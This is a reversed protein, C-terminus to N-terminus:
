DVLAILEDKEDQSLQDWQNFKDAQAIWRDKALTTLLSVRGREEETTDTGSQKLNAIRIELNRLNFCVKKEDDQFVAIRGEIEIFRNTNIFRTNIM